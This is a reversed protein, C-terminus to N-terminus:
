IGHISVKKLGLKYVFHTVLTLVLIWATGLVLDDPNPKIYGLAVMAPTYGALKLPLLMAIEKITGPLMSLPIFKGTFFDIAASMTNIIGWSDEIWFAMMGTIMLVEIVGISGLISILISYALNSLSVGTIALALIIVAIELIVYVLNGGYFNLIWQIRTDLPVRLNIAIDGKKIAKSIRRAFGWQFSYNFLNALLFYPVIDSGKVPISIYEGLISWALIVSFLAVLRPIVGILNMRYALQSKMSKVIISRAVQLNM